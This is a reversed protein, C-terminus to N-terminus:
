PNSLSVLEEKIKNLLKIYANLIRDQEQFLKTQEENLQYNPGVDDPISERLRENINECQEFLRDSLGMLVKITKM